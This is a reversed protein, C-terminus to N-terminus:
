GCRLNSIEGLKKMIHGRRQWDNTNGQKEHCSNLKLLKFNIEKQPFNHGSAINMHLGQSFMFARPRIHFDYLLKLSKLRRSGCSLKLFYNRILLTYHKYNIWEKLLSKQM